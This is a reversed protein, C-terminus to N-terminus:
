YFIRSIMFGSSVLLTVSLDLFFVGALVVILTSPLMALCKLGASAQALSSAVLIGGVAQFLILILVTSDYGAFFGTKAIHEGDLFLVGLFLAPWIAYFTLQVNRIWISKSYEGKVKLLKEFYVSAVGSLLCAALAAALGTVVDPQPYAAEFDSHIGEYTASRKSLHDAAARVIDWLGWTDEPFYASRAVHVSKGSGSKGARALASLDVVGVGAGVAALSLWQKLSHVRGNLIGNFVATSVLKLQCTVAFVVLDLNSAAVYQLSNQVVYLSAPIALKWSDGSFVARSIARALEGITPTESRQLSTAIEYLAMTAAFALKIIEALLIATSAYFRQGRVTPM